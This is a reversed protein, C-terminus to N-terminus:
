EVAESGRIGTNDELSLFEKIEEQNYVGGAM